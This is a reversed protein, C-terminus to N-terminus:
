NSHARGETIRMAGILFTQNPRLRVAIPPAGPSPVLSLDVYNATVLLKSLYPPVTNRRVQRDGFWLTWNQPDVYILASLHLQEILWVPKHEPIELPANRADPLHGRDPPRMALAANIATFEDATFLLSGTFNGTANQAPAAPNNLLSLLGAFAITRRCPFGPM